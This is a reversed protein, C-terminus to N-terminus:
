VSVEGAVAPVARLGISQPDNLLASFALESAGVLPLESLLQAREITVTDTLETFTSSRIAKELYAPDAAYLSGLFGGLVISAPNFIAVFNGLSTGLVDLQRHVEARVREAKDDGAALTATLLEDLEDGLLRSVDLSGLLRQLNVETEFCGRSGCFCEAGGPTVQTHGLEGAFGEAGRLHRGDALVGGGIGSSSGSLYVLDRVERGAGFLSEAIMGLGADNAVSVPVDVQEGLLAALPEDRWLLHPALRVVGDSRRVLGPVAIGVGVIRMSEGANTRLQDIISVMQALAEAVTPPTESALRVRDLVVGGLGILAGGTADTDPNLAITAVNTALNVWPSPRGVTGPDTQQTEFVLELAVLESVLAAITSRNLGTRRTLEARTLAGNHHLLTLLISLNHRRTQDNSNGAGSSTVTIQSM